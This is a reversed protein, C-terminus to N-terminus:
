PSGRKRLSRDFYVRHGQGITPSCDGTNLIIINKLGPFDQRAVSDNPVYAIVDTLVYINSSTVCKKEKVFGRNINFKNFLLEM